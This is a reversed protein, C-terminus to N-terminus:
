LLFLLSLFFLIKINESFSFPLFFFALFLCLTINFFNGYFSPMGGFKQFCIYIWYIGFIFFGSGFIFSKANESGNFNILYLLPIITFFILPYFNFPAFHLVSCAGLLFPTLYKITFPLFRM